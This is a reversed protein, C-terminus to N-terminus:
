IEYGAYRIILLQELDVRIKQLYRGVPTENLPIRVPVEMVLFLEGKVPIKDPFAIRAYGGVAAQVQLSTDLPVQLNLDVPIAETVSVSVPVQGKVPIEELLHIGADAKYFRDIRRTIRISDFVPIDLQVDLDLDVLSVRLSDDVVVTTDLPILREILLNVPVVIQQKFPVAGSVDVAQELQLDVHVIISKQVAVAMDIPIKQKIYVTHDIHENALTDMYQATHLLREQAMNKFLLLGVIIGVNMMLSIFLLVWLVVRFLPKAPRM